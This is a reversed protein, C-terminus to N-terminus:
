SSKFCHHSSVQIIFFIGRRHGTLKNCQSLLFLFSPQTYKTKLLHTQHSVLGRYNLYMRCSLCRRITNLRHKYKTWYTSQIFSHYWKVLFHIRVNWQYRIRFYPTNISGIVACKIICCQVDVNCLRDNDQRRFLFEVYISTANLHREKYNPM